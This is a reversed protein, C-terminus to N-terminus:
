YSAAHQQAVLQAIHEALGRQASDLTKLSDAMRFEELALDFRKIKYYVSGLALHAPRHDPRLGIAIKLAAEAAPMEGLCAYAKGMEFHQEVDRPMLQVGIRLAELAERHRGLGNEVCGLNRYGVGMNPKLAIAKRIALSAEPLRDKEFLAVGLNFWPRNKQPSKSAADKWINIESSWVHQRANTATAL